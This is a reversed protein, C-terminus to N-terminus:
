AGTSAANNPVVAEQPPHGALPRLTDTSTAVSVVISRGLASTAAKAVRGSFAGRQYALMLDTSHLDSGGIRMPERIATTASNRPLRSAYGGIVAVDIGKAYRADVDTWVTAPHM